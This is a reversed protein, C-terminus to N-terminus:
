AQGQVIKVDGTRGSAEMKAKITQVAASAKSMDFFTVPQGERQWIKGNISIHYTGNRTAPSRTSRQERRVFPDPEGLDRAEDRVREQHSRRGMSGFKDFAESVDNLKM